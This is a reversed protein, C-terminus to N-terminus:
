ARATHSCSRCTSTPGRRNTSGCTSSTPRWASWQGGNATPSGSAIASRAPRAAGSDSPWRTTSSRWPAAGEDDREEFADARWSISGCHRSTTLGSSTRCSRSTKTVGRSTARSRWASRPRISFPWRSTHRSRPSDPAPIARPGGRAPSPLLRPRAREDYGNQKLDVAISTVHTPDFGPNTRRAAELSRTVLGSGVLLLLSVAVQAVVLGARLRGRAAGRPSADQNIVTVLDVRSSQLAPIFGFVLASGCAVLVAFGIVLGDVGINFFIRRPAALSEAYGVLLPIGRSALLVGLIAGPLALVLNELILLRVIRTRTAGLALRVAIEGRRSVGRVLVLGAINACAITLVLVGMAGLVTLTPLLQM